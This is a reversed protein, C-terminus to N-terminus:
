TVVDLYRIINLFFSWTEWQKKSKTYNFSSVNHAVAIDNINITGQFDQTYLIASLLCYCREGVVAFQSQRIARRTINQTGSCFVNWWWRQRWMLSYVVAKWLRWPWLKRSSGDQRLKYKRTQRGVTSDSM